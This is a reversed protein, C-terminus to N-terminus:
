VPCFPRPLRPELFLAFPEGGGLAFEGVHFLAAVGLIALFELAEHVLPAVPSSALSRASAKRSYPRARSGGNGRRRPARPRPRRHRQCQSSADQGSGQSRFRSLQYPPRNGRMPSSRRGPESRRRAMAPQRGRFKPRWRPNRRLRPKAVRHRLPRRWTSVSYRRSIAPKSGRDRLAEGRPPCPRTSLPSSRAPTSRACAFCCNRRRTWGRVPGM